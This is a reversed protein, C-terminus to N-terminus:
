TCEFKFTVPQISYIQYKINLFNKYLNYFLDIIDFANHTFLMEM